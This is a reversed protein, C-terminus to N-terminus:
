MISVFIITKVLYKETVLFKTKPSAFLICKQINFASMKRNEKVAEGDLKIIGNGYVTESDVSKM